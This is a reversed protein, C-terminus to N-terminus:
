GQRFRADCTLPEHDKASVSTKGDGPLNFLNLEMGIAQVPIFAQGEAPGLIGEEICKLFVL